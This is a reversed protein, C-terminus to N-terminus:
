TATAVMTVIRRTCKLAGEISAIQLETVGTALETGILSTTHAGTTTSRMVTTLKLTMMASFIGPQVVMGSAVGEIVTGGPEETAEKIVIALEQSARTATEEEVLGMTIIEDAGTDVTTAEGETTRALRM